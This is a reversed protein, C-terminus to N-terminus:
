RNIYETTTEEAPIETTVDSENTATNGGTSDTMPVDTM